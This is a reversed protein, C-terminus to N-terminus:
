QSVSNMRSQLFRDSLEKQLCQLQSSAENNSLKNLDRNTIGVLYLGNCKSIISYTGDHNKILKWKQADTHNIDYQWITTGINQSQYPVDLVKGSCKSQIMYYGNDDYIINFRQADTNNKDYVQINTGTQCSSAPIDVSKNSSLKLEIEYTGAPLYDEKQKKYIM